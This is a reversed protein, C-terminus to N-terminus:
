VTDANVWRGAVGRQAHAVVRKRIRELECM